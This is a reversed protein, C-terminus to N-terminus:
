EARFHDFGTKTLTVKKGEKFLELQGTNTIEGIAFLPRSLLNEYVQKVKQLSHKKITALLCYDEGGTLTIEDTNWHHKDSTRQLSSSVPIQDIFIRAGVGSQEMIHRIDSYIGDSVDLMSTVERHSSLIEGEVLHPKPMHHQHILNEIDSTVDLNENMAQLAGGSDGLYGTVVIVDGESAGSRKKILHKQCRGIVAINIAISDNVRTTDGGLLLTKSNDALHKIGKFFDDLWDLTTEPPIGISLFASVPYGGMAAIDSLNVALSKYGLEFPSIKDPLFHQREILMDTTILMVEKDNFPMVACDDGIGEFGKPLHAKFNESFRKIFGFEGIDKLTTMFIKHHQRKNFGNLSLANKSDGSDIM